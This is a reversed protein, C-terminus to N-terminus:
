PTAEAAGFGHGGLDAKAATEGIQVIATMPLLNRNFIDTGHLCM